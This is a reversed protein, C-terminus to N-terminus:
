GHFGGWREQEVLLFLETGTGFGCRCVNMGMLAVRKWSFFTDSSFMLKYFGFLIVLAINIKLFCIGM